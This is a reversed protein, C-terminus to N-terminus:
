RALWRGVQARETVLEVVIKGAKFDDAAKYERDDQFIPLRAVDASHAAHPDTCRVLPGLPTWHGRIAFLAQLLLWAAFLGTAKDSGDSSNSGQGQSGHQNDNSGSGNNSHRHGCTTSTLVLASHRCADLGSM